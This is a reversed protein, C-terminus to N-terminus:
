PCSRKEGYYLKKKKLLKRKELGFHESTFLTTENAIRMLNKMYRIYVSMSDVNEKDILKDAYNIFNIYLKKYKSYIVKKNESTENKLLEMAPSNNISTGLLFDNCRKYKEKAKEVNSICCFYYYENYEQPFYNEKNETNSM